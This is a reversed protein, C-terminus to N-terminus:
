RKRNATGSARSPPKANGHEGISKIQERLHEHLARTRQRNEDIKEGLEGRVASFEARMETRLQLIQTEVGTM